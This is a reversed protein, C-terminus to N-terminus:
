FCFHFLNGVCVLARFDKEPIADGVFPAIITYALDEYSLSAMAAIEKPSFHPVTEPVYLGGDPALGATLVDAFDLASGGGRTSIYQM